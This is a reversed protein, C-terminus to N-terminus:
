YWVNQGPMGATILSAAQTGEYPEMFDRKKRVEKIESKFVRAVNADVEKIKCVSDLLVELDNAFLRAYSDVLQAIELFRKDFKKMAKSNSSIEYNARRIEAIGNVAWELSRHVETYADIDLSIRKGMREESTRM